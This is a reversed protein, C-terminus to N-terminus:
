RMPFMSHFMSHSMLMRVMMTGLYQHSNKTTLSSEPMRAATITLKLFQSSFTVCDTSVRIIKYFLDESLPEDSDQFALMCTFKNFLSEYECERVGVFTDDEIKSYIPEDLMFNLNDLVDNVEFSSSITILALLMIVKM